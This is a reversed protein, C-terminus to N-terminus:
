CIGSDKGENLLRVMEDRVSHAEKARDIAVRLWTFWLHTTILIGGLHATVKGEGSLIATGSIVSDDASAYDQDHVEVHTPKQASEDVPESM